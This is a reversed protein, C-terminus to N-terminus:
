LNKNSKAVIFYWSMLIPGSFQLRKGDELKKTYTGIGKSEPPELDIDIEFPKYYFSKFNNEEFFEKIISISYIQYYFEFFDKNESPRTFDQVNIKCNLNGEYFLSSIAIWKPNLDIMKKIAVKYDPLALLTQLMIIGDFNGIYEKNLNYIDGKALKVNNVDKLHENGWKVLDLNLDIGFYDCKPFIQSMYFMNAGEGACLDLIKLESNEDILELEKLYDCFFVTSRYPEKYQIEHYIHKGKKTMSIWKLKEEENQAM